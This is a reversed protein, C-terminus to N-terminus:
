KYFYDEFIDLDIVNDNIDLDEFRKVRDILQHNYAQIRLNSDRAEKLHNNREIIALKKNALITDEDSKAKKIDLAFAVLDYLSVNLEKAERNIREKEKTSPTRFGILNDNNKKKHTKKSM